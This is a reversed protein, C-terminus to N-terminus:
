IEALQIQYFSFYVTNLTFIMQKSSSMVAPFLNSNYLNQILMVKRKSSYSGASTKSVIQTKSSKSPTGGPNQPVM